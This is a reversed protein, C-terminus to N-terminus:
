LHDRQMYLELNYHSVVMLLFTFYLSLLVDSDIALTALAVLHLPYEQVSTMGFEFCFYLLEPCLDSM